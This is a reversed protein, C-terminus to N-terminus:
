HAKIQFKCEKGKRGEPTYYLASPIEQTLPETHNMKFKASERKEGGRGEPTCIEFCFVCQDKSGIFSKLKATASCLVSSTTPCSSRTFYLIIKNLTYKLSASDHKYM